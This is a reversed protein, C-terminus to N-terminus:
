YERGNQLLIVDEITIPIEYCLVYLVWYRCEWLFVNDVSRESTSARTPSM